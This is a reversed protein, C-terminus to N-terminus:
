LMGALLCLFDNNTGSLPSCEGLRPHLGMALAGLLRWHRARLWVRVGRQIRSILFVIRVGKHCDTCMLSITEKSGNPNLTKACILWQCAFATTIILKVKVDLSNIAHMIGQITHVGEPIYSTLKYMDRGVRLLYFSPYFSVNQLHIVDRARGCPCNYCFPSPCPPATTSMRTPLLQCM